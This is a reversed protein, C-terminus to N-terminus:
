ARGYYYCLILLKAINTQGYTAAMTLPTNGVINVSNVNAGREILLQVLGVYGRKSAAMLPTSGFANPTDVNTGGDLMSQVGAVDNQVSVEFLSLTTCGSLVVVSLVAMMFVTIKPM